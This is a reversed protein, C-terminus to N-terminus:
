VAACEAGEARLWEVAPMPPRLFLALWGELPLRGTSLGRSLAPLWDWRRAPEAPSLPAM